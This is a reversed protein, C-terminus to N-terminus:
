PIFFFYVWNLFMINFLLIAFQVWRALDLKRWGLDQSSTLTTAQTLHSHQFLGTRMSTEVAKKCLDELPVKVQAGIDKLAVESGVSIGLTEVLVCTVCGLLQSPFGIM